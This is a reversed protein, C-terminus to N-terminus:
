FTYIYKKKMLIDLRANRSAVEIKQSEQFVAMKQLNEFYKRAGEEITFELGLNDFFHLIKKHLMVYIKAFFHM